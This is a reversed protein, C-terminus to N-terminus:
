KGKTDIKKLIVLSNNQVDTVHKFVDKLGQYNEALIHSQNLKLDFTLSVQNQLTSTNFQFLVIKNGLQVAQKEPVEHVKYGEPITINISYKFNRAYGFDIPYLREELLFPNTEFFRILFPNFYVMDGELIDELEFEFRESVNTDTNKEKRLKYSLISLDGEIDKEIAELYNEQSSQDIVERINVANHGISYVDFVGYGKRQEVDFKLQARVQYKNNREPLITHWYSENKFDMVRGYHNLTRFPLMGFAMYKDTADLLYDKGDIEVKAICYNFNSMVPHLKTPLGNNRTSLLMLNTKIGAANLLNILTMNIESVNGKKTEFAQKVRAKGYIGYKENWNFHNQVFSYINKAKTLADGQTLLKEPVNKEFFGKKSLQKGIDKDSRFERDVDKWSKTYNNITGNFQHYQSLEFDIRSIYNSAALMYEEEIKFAPIDKMVYKLVECSAPKPLGDPHFCDKKITAENTDLKLSGTLARNYVWNGPIKANFESYIVPIDRQFSWGSFNFDFPTEITYNYEIISGPHLKPFTFKKEKWRESLDSTFVEEPLVNYQNGQYHTVAKLKKMKETVRDNHYLQVEITGYDFAKENFIKIKGHYEKILRIRGGVVKYYNDGREYLVVANATPDKEYSTMNKEENTIKGFTVPMQAFSSSFVFLFVVLFLYKLQMHILHNTSNLLKIKTEKNCTM